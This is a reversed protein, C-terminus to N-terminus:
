TTPVRIITTQRQSRAGVYMHAPLQVACSGRARWVCFSCEKAFHQMCWSVKLFINSVHFHQFTQTSDDRVLRSKNQTRPLPAIASPEGFLLFTLFNQKQGIPCVVAIPSTRSFASHSRYSAKPSHGFFWRSQYGNFLRWSITLVDHNRREATLLLFSRIQM